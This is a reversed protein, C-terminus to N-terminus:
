RDAVLIYLFFSLYVFRKSFKITWVREMKWLGNDEELSILFKEIWNM